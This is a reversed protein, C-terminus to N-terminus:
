HAMAAPVHRQKARSGDAAPCLADDAPLGHKMLDLAPMPRGFFFGQLQDCGLEILADRQESTEVGEAVVRLDLAHALRVIADVIARANKNMAVDMVFERDIKLESVRMQRLSSLSSYGTGFDDISVQVGMASLREIIGKSAQSHEMAISETIECALQGPDVQHRELARHVDDVFSASRLQHSSLNVAVRVTSGQAQWCAMQRCAEDIVWAGMRHILGFREAIPIFVNPSISGRVPHVWRLLAEVGNLKGTRGDFKPQYYLQLQEQDLAERLAQRLEVLESVDEHM